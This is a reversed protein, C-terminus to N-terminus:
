LDNGEIGAVILMAPRRQRDEDNGGGLELHWVDRKGPTKAASEVRALKKNSRALDKLQVALTKADRYDLAVAEAAVGALGSALLLLFAPLPLRLTFQPLMSPGLDYCPLGGAPWCM